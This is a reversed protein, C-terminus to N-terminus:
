VEIAARLAGLHERFTIEPRLRRAALYSAWQLQSRLTTGERMQEAQRRETSAIRAAEELLADADGARVFLVGDADGFVAHDRTVSTGAFRCAALPAVTRERAAPPGIPISGTSFVPLAIERLEATDRHHGWLVIGSIGANVAELVTLDGICGEDDRNANDIVLVDGPEASDLAELFVDVSGFHTVPLAPGALRAGPLLPRVSSPAAAFEVRLRVCADALNATTLQEFRAYTGTPKTGM